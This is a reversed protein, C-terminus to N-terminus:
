CIFSISHFIRAWSGIFYFGCISVCPPKDTRCRLSTFIVRFLLLNWSRAIIFLWFLFSYKLILSINFKAWSCSQLIIIWYCQIWTWTLIILTFNFLRWTRWKSHPSPWFIYLIQSWFSHHWPWSIIFLCQFSWCYTSTNTISISKFFLLISIWSRARIFKM